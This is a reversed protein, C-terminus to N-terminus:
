AKDVELDMKREENKEGTNHRNTWNRQKYKVTTSDRM